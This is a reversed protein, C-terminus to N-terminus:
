PKQPKFTAETVKLTRLLWLKKTHARKASEDHKNKEIHSKLKDLKESAMDKQDKFTIKAESLIQMVRKGLLKAKPIGYKDRLVLGIKAPSEGKKALEVVIEELEKPKISIWEPKAESKQEEM